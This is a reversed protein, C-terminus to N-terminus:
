NEGEREYDTLGGSVSILLGGLVIGVLSAILIEIM